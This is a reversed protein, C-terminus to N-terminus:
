RWLPKGDAELEARELVHRHRWNLDRCRQMPGCEPDVTRAPSSESMSVSVARISHGRLPRAASRRGRTGGRPTRPGTTNPPMSQTEQDDTVRQGGSGVWPEVICQGTVHSVPAPEFNGWM